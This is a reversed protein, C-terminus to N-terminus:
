QGIQITAYAGSNVSIATGSAYMRFSYFQNANFPFQSPTYPGFNFAQVTSTLTGTQNPAPGNANASGNFFYPAFTGSGAAYVTIYYLYSPNGSRYYATQGGTMGPNLFEIFGQNNASTNAQTNFGTPYYSVSSVNTSSPILYQPNIQIFTAGASGRIGQWQYTKGASLKFNPSYIQSGVTGAAIGNGNNYGAVAVNDTLNQLYVYCTAGTTGFNTIQLGTLASDQLPVFTYPINTGNFFFAINSGTTSTGMTQGAFQAAPGWGAALSTTTLQGGPAGDAGNLGTDGKVGQLGQLGTDGKVGQIGQLGTDGKVGATGNSGTDGKLGQLGQLGQIGQDGKPGAIGQIGQDGKDGKAGATGTGGGGTNVANTDVVGTVNGDSDYSIIRAM